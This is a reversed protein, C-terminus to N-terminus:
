LLLRLLSSLVCADGLPLLLLLLVVRLLWRHLMLLIEVLLVRLPKPRALVSKQKSKRCIGVLLSMSVFVRCRRSLVVVQFVVLMVDMQNVTFVWSMTRVIRRLRYERLVRQM